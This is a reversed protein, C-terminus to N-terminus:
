EEAVALTAGASRPVSHSGANTAFARIVVGVLNERRVLTEDPESNGLGMARWGRPTEEILTHAVPRGRDGTFVVTMGVQLQGVPLRQVVLVTRDAYLPLMSNGCGVLVECDRQASAIAEARRWAEGPSLPEAVVPSLEATVARPMKAVPQSACGSEIVIVAGVALAAAFIRCRPQVRPFRM